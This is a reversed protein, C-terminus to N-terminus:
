ALAPLTRSLDILGQLDLGTTLGGLAADVSMRMNARNHTESSSM